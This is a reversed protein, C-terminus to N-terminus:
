SAKDLLDLFTPSKGKKLSIFTIDDLWQGLSLKERKVWWADPYDFALVIKQSITNVDIKAKKKDRAMFTLETAVTIKLHALKYMDHIAKSDAKAKELLDGSCLEHLRNATISTRKASGRVIGVDEKLNKLDTKIQDLVKSDIAVTKVEEKTESM